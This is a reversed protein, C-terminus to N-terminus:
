KCKRSWIIEGVEKLTKSFSKIVRYLVKLSDNRESVLWSVTLGKWVIYAVNRESASSRRTNRVISIINDHLFNM